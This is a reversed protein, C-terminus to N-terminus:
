AFLILYSLLLLFALIILMRINSSRKQKRVAKMQSKMKGKINPIYIGDELGEKGERRLEADIVRKRKELEEKQEDYFRPIYNYKKGRPLYFFQIAM